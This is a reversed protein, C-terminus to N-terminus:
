ICYGLDGLRSAVLAVELVLALPVTPYADTCLVCKISKALPVPTQKVANGPRRPLSDMM